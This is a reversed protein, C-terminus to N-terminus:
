TEVFRSKLEGPFHCAVEGGERHAVLPPEESTCRTQAVPCRSHFRCGTPPAASSPPDGELVIRGARGEPEPIPVASLLSVTYPHKAKRVLDRAPLVEVVKGAYLVAVRNAIQEVLALDHAIFLVTLGLSQQLRYLLNIIQARVSVDLASVPEDAVVFDPKTALARAIGIRQRQGGSFQHPFRDLASADMDVTELLEVLRDQSSDKGLLDHVQLPELLVRRIRMRPNLSGYPDQFIMQFRRRRRRLAKPSLELLDEGDFHISGSTPELLRILSRGLTTKGSGSEGVLAFCEGRQISLNVGDVARVVGQQRQLLGRRVPYHKTLARAEVLGSM